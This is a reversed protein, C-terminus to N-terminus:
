QEWSKVCKSISDEPTSTRWNGPILGEATDRDATIGNWDCKEMLFNHLIVSAHIILTILDEDADICSHFIRWRASLIGFSNEVVLRARSLRYNFIRCEKTTYKGPFPRMLNPQLQFAEDGLFVYPLEVGNSLRAPQLLYSSANEIFKDIPSTDLIGSDSSSGERGIDVMLFRYNADAAAFLVKSYFKKYNFCMSGSRKPSKIRINGTWVEVHM